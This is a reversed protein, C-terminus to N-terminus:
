WDRNKYSFRKGAHGTPNAYQDRVGGDTTQWLSANHLPQGTRRDVLVTTERQNPSGSRRSESASFALSGAIVEAAVELQSQWNIRAHEMGDRNSTFKPSDRLLSPVGHPARPDFLIARSSTNGQDLALRLNM